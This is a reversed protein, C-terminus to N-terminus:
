CRRVLRNSYCERSQTDLNVFQGFFVEVLSEDGVIELDDDGVGDVQEPNM